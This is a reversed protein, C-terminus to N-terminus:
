QLMHCSVPLPRSPARRMVWLSRTHTNMGKPGQLAHGGQLVQGDVTPVVLRHNGRTHHLTHFCQQAQGIVAEADPGALDEHVEGTGQAQLLFELHGIAQTRAHTHKNNKERFAAEQTDGLIQDHCQM